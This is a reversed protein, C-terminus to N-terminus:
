TVAPTKKPQAPRNRVALMPAPSGSIPVGMSSRMPTLSSYRNEEMCQIMEKRIQALYTPGHRLLTSVVQVAEAGAMIAKVADHERVNFLHYASDLFCVLRGLAQLCSGAEFVRRYAAM